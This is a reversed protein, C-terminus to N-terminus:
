ILFLIFFENRTDNTNNGIKNNNSDNSNNNNDNCHWETANAQNAVTELNDLNYYKEM